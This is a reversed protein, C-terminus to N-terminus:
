EEFPLTWAEYFLDDLLSLSNANLPFEGEIKDLPQKRNSLLSATKSIKHYEHEVLRGFLEPLRARECLERAADPGAYIKSESPVVLFMAFPSYNFQAKLFNQATNEHWSLAGLDRTRKLWKTVASCYPCKSDYIVVSAINTTREYKVMM